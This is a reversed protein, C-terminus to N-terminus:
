EHDKEELNAKFAPLVTLHNRQFKGTWREPNGSTRREGICGLWYNTVVAMPWPAFCLAMMWKSLGYYPVLHNSIYVIYAVM